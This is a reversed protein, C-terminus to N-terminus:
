IINLPEALKFSQQPIQHWGNQSWHFMGNCGLCSLFIDSRFTWPIENVGNGETSLLVTYSHSCQMPLVPFCVRASKKKIRCTEGGDKIDSGQSTFLNDDPCYLNLHSRLLGDAGCRMLQARCHGLPCVPDNRTSFSAFYFISQLLSPGYFFLQPTEQELVKQQFWTKGPHSSPQSGPCHCFETFQILDWCAPSSIELSTEEGWCSYQHSGTEYLSCLM